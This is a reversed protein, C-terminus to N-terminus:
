WRKGPRRGPVSAASRDTHGSIGLHFLNESFARVGSTQTGTAQRGGERCCLVLHSARAHSAHEGAALCTDAGGAHTHVLLEIGGSPGGLSLNQTLHTHTGQAGVQLIPVRCYGERVRPTPTSERVSVSQCASREGARPGRTKWTVRLSTASIAARSSCSGARERGGWWGPASGSLSPPQATDTEAQATLGPARRTQSPPGRPESLWGLVM